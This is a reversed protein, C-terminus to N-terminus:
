HRAMPQAVNGQLGDVLRLEEGGAALVPEAGHDLLARVPDDGTLAGPANGDGDEDVALRALDQIVGLDVLTDHVGERCFPGVGPKGFPGGLAEKPVVIGDEFPLLHPVNQVDPEVGAGGVGEAQLLAGIELPGGVEIEFTRVLM